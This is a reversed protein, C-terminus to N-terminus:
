SSVKAPFVLDQTKLGQYNVSKGLYFPKTANDMSKGFVIIKTLEPSVLISPEETTTSTFESINKLVSNLMVNIQLKFDWKGTINSEKKTFVVFSDRYKWVSKNPYFTDNRHITYRGSSTNRTKPTYVLIAADTVM